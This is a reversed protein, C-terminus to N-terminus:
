IVKSPKYKAKTKLAAPRKTWLHLKAELRYIASGGFTLPRECLRQSSESQFCPFYMWCCVPVASRCFFLINVVFFLENQTGGLKNTTKM